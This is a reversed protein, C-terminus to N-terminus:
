SEQAHAPSIGLRNALQRGLEDYAWSVVCVVDLRDAAELLARGPGADDAALLAASALLDLPERAGALTRERNSKLQGVGVIVPTLEPSRVDSRQGSRAGPIRNKWCEMTSCCMWRTM